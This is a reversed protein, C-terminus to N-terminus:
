APHEWCNGACWGTQVRDLNRVSARCGAGGPRLNRRNKAAYVDGGQQMWRDVCACRADIRDLTAYLGVREIPRVIRECVVGPATEISVPQIACVRHFREIRAGADVIAQKLEKNVESEADDFEKESVRLDDLACRDLRRTLEILAVDGRNRVDEITRAVAARTASSDSQAPRALASTRTARDIENWNIQKM